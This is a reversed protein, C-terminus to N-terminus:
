NVGRRVRAYMEQHWSIFRRSVEPLRKLMRKPIVELASNQTFMLPASCAHCVIIGRASHEDPKPRLGPLGKSSMQAEFTVAGTEITAKCEPCQGVRQMEPPADFIERGEACQEAIIRAMAKKLIDNM